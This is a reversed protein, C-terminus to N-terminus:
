KQQTLFTKKEQYLHFFQIIKIQKSYLNIQKLASSYCSKLFVSTMLEFEERAVGFWGGFVTQVSLKKCM